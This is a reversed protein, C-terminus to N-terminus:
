WCEFSPRVRLRDLGLARSAVRRAGLGVRRLGRVDGRQVPVGGGRLTVLALQALQPRGALRLLRPEAAQAFLGLRGRGRVRGRELRVRGRRVVVGPRVRRAERFALCLPFPQAGLRAGRVLRLELARARLELRLLCAKLLQLLVGFLRTRPSPHQRTATAEQNRAPHPRSRRM